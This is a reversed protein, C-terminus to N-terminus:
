VKRLVLDRPQFMRSKMRRNYLNELRNHYSEIRVATAERLEDTTDLDKIMTETNSQKPLDARLTPMGIETPVIAEIRYTLAFPCIGIPRRATTRYTWLVGLLEDVWKVKASDLRKKLSTLITKNSAEAEGNSQPYRPTFYLNRIEIGPLLKQLSPQRISTTIQCLQNPYVSDTSSIRGSSSLSM